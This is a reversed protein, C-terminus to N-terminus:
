HFIVDAVVPFHDSPYCGDVLAPDIGHTVVTVQPDIFIHDLIVGPTGLSCFAQHSKACYNTSSLPGYNGMIPQDIADVLREGKIMAEVAPGDYFPIELEPRFPFTNFDGTVLVPCDRSLTSLYEGLFRAECARRESDAFSLHTNILCFEQGTLGDRFRAAAFVKERGYAGSPRKAQPYDVMEGDLLEFRAKRYFILPTEDSQLDGFFAYTEGLEESLYTIQEPTLEQSGILDPAAYLLYEVLRAKREPWRDQRKLQQDWYPMLMNFSMVRVRPADSLSTIKERQYEDLKTLNVCPQNMQPLISQTVAGCLTSAVCLSLLFFKKMM